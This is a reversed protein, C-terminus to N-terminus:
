LDDFWNLKNKHYIVKKKNKIHYEIGISDYNVNVLKAEEIPLEREDTIRQLSPPLIDETIDRYLVRATQKEFIGEKKYVTIMPNYLAGPRGREMRYINNLKIQQDCGLTSFYLLINFFPIMMPLISLIIGSILIGFYVKIGKKKWFRIIIFVTMALWLWNIIKDTYYGALSYHNLSIIIGFLFILTVALYAIVINKNSM